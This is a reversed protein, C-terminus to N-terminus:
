LAQVLLRPGTVNERENILEKPIRLHSEQQQWVGHAIAEAQASLQHSPEHRAKSQVRQKPAPEEKFAAVLHTDELLLNVLAQGAFPSQDWSYVIITEDSLRELQQGVLMRISRQGRSSLVPLRAFPISWLFEMAVGLMYALLTVGAGLGLPRMFSNLDSISQYVGHTHRSAINPEILLWAV